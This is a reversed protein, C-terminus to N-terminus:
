PLLNAKELLGYVAIGSAVTVNMSTNLGMMPIHISQDVQQLVEESIGRKENGVALLVPTKPRFRYYPVSRDTIELALFQYRAKLREWDPHPPLLEFELLRQTTRAARQLKRDSLNPQAGRYFIKELRAAEALRFLAGLNRPSEIEDLLLALPHRHEMVWKARQEPQARAERFTKQKEQEM